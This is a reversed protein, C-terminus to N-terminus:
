ARAIRRVNDREPSVNAFRPAVPTCPGGRRRRAAARHHERLANPAFHHSSPNPHGWVGQQDARAPNGEMVCHNSFKELVFGKGIEVKDMKIPATM